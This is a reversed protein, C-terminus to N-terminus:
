VLPRPNGDGDVNREWINTSGGPWDTVNAHLWKDFVNDIVRINTSGPGPLYMNYAPGPDPGGFWNREILIDQGPPVQGIFMAINSTDPSEFWNHRITIHDSSNFQISDNHSEPNSHDLDHIYNDQLLLGREGKMGDQGGSINCRLVRAYPGVAIGANTGGTFTCDEVVLGSTGISEIGYFGGTFVCNRFVTDPVGPTVQSFIRHEYVGGENLFNRSDEVLLGPDGLYGTNTANPWDTLGGAVFSGDELSRWGNTARVYPTLRM